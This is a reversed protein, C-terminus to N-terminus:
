RSARWWLLHYVAQRRTIYVTHSRGTVSDYCSLRVLSDSKDTTMVVGASMPHVHVKVGLPFRLTPM